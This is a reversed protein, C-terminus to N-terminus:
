TISDYRLQHEIKQIDYTSDLRVLTQVGDNPHQDM